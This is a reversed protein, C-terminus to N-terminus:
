SHLVLIPQLWASDGPIFIFNTSSEREDDVGYVLWEM